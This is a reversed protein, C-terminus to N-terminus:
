DAFECGQIYHVEGFADEYLDFISEIQHNNLRKEDPLMLSEVADPDVERSFERAFNSLDELMQEYTM